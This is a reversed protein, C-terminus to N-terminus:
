PARKSPAVVACALLAAVVDGFLEDSFADPDAVREFVMGNM